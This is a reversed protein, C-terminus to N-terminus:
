KNNLNFFIRKILLMDKKIIKKTIFIILLYLLISFIVLISTKIILSDVILISKLFLVLSFMILSILNVYTIYRFNIGELWEKNLYNILWISGILYSIVTTIAAIEVTRFIGILFLNLLLNIIALNLNIKFIIKTKKQVFLIISLIMNVGFFISSSSIIPIILWAAEASEKNTFIELIEKAFLFSGFMFPVAFILYVRLAIKIIKSSNETDGSDIIKSIFIPIIVNFVKAIIISMAGISYAASYNGVDKVTMFLAIVYRDGVIMMTEVLFSLALPLGLSIDKKIIDLSPISIKYNIEKRIIFFVCFGVLSMSIINSSILWDLKFEHFFYFVLLSFIIFLYPTLVTALNMLGFKSTYRLFIISQSYIVQSLLYLPLLILSLDKLSFYNLKTGFYLIVLLILSFIIISIIQFYFQPLFLQSRKKITKSSPLYRIAKYGYGFSSFGHIIGLLSIIIVYFGYDEVSSLKSIMPIVILGQLFILCHAILTQFSSTIFNM